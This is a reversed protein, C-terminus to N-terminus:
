WAATMYLIHYQGYFDWSSVSDGCQDQLAIKNMVQGIGHGTSVITHPDNHKWGCLYCREAGDTPDSVCDLEDCDSVGDGDSDVANPDTGLELEELDTMCDGDSNQTPDIGGGAGSGTTAGAGSSGANGGGFDGSSASDHGTASDDEDAPGQISCGTLLLTTFLGFALQIFKVVITVETSYVPQGTHIM